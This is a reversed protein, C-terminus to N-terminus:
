YLQCVIERGQLDLTVRDREIKKVVAGDISNGATVIRGNVIACPTGDPNKMIGTLKYAPDPTAPVQGPPQPLAAIAPASEPPPLSVAPPTTVADAPAAPTERAAHPQGRLALWGLAIALLAVAALPWGALRLRLQKSRQAPPTSLAGEPRAPLPPSVPPPPVADAIRGATSIPQGTKRLREREAKQLADHVLSM